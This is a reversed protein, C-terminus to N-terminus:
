LQWDMSRQLQDIFCNNIKLVLGEGEEKRKRTRYGDLQKFQNLITTVIGMGYGGEWTHILQKLKERRGKDEQNERDM